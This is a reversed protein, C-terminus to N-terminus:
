WLEAGAGACPSEATQRCWRLAEPSHAARASRFLGSAMLSRPLVGGRLKKFAM